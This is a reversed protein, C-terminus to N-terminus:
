YYAGPQRGHIEDPSSPCMFRDLVSTSATIPAIAAAIPATPNAGAAYAAPTVALKTLVDSQPEPQSPFYM